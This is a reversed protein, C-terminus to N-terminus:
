RCQMAVPPTAALSLDVVPAPGTLEDLHSAYLERLREPSVQHAPLDFALEGDRLGVIREFHQLAMDVHHLTAVLTAGRARAVRTLTTLAQRAREPDLASLPEDVLLLQANSAVLRALGVRQREGGSLRDVREFLKEALDFQALASAALAIDQPYFLSRLSAWLGMEPLRGALVSTVVRQRPPLPPVQPALFLSGRLRQLAATRMQWPAQEGLQLRGQSPKLACAILQLLTTKGAGSPGIVAVQEGSALALSLKKLAPPAGSTAAPHSVSCAELVLKM